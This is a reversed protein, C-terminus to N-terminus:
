RYLSKVSGFSETEVPIAMDGFIFVPADPHGSVPYMIELGDDSTPLFVMQGPISPVSVPSFTVEVPSSNFNLFQFHVLAVADDVGPLVDVFGAIFELYGEFLHDTDGINLGLALLQWSLLFLDGVPSFNLQCEFAKVGESPVGNAAPKTLVLYVDVPSGIVSTGTDGYGDTTTYLGLENFHTPEALSTGPALLSISFVAIVAFLMKKM